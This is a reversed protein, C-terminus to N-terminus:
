ASHIIKKWLRGTRSFFFHTQTLSLSNFDANYTLFQAAVHVTSNGIWESIELQRMREEIDERDEELLLWRTLKPDYKPSAAIIELYEPQVSLDLEIVPVDGRISTCSM